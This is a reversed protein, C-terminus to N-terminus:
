LAPLGQGAETRWRRFPRQESHHGEQPRTDSLQLAEAEEMLSKIWLGDGGEVHM